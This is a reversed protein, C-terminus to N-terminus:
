LSGSSQKKQVTISIDDSFYDKKDSTHAVPRELERMLKINRSQRERIIKSFEKVDDSGLFNKLDLWERDEKSISSALATPMHGGSQFKDDIFFEAPHVDLATAIAYLKEETLWQKGREIRSLNGDALGARTEVEALTLGKGTRHQKIKEGIGMSM